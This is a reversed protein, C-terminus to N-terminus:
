RSAVRVETKGNQGDIVLAIGVVLGAGVGTALVAHAPNLDPDNDSGASAILVTGAIAAATLVVTGMVRKDLASDARKPASGWEESQHLPPLRRRPAPLADQSALCYNRCVRELDLEAPVNAPAAYPDVVLVLRPEAEAYPDVIEQARLEAEGTGAPEEARATGVVLVLSLTGVLARGVM